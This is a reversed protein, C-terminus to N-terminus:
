PLSMLDELSASDMKGYHLVSKGHFTFMGHFTMEHFSKVSFQLRARTEVMRNSDQDFKTMKHSNGVMVRASSSKQHSGTEDVFFVLQFVNDFNKRAKPDNKTVKLAM